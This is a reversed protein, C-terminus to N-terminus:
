PTPHRRENLKSLQVDLRTLMLKIDQIDQKTAYESRINTELQRLSKELDAYTVFLGIKLMGIALVSLMAPVVAQRVTAIPEM